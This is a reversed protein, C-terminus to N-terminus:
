FGPVGGPLFRNLGTVQGTISSLQQRQAPVTQTLATQPTIPGLQQTAPTVQPAPAAPAATPAPKAGRGMGGLAGSLGQLAGAGASVGPGPKKEKSMGGPKIMSWQQMGTVAQQMQQLRAQALANMMAPGISSYIDRIGGYAAPGFDSGGRMGIQRLYGQVNAQAQRAGESRQLALLRRTFPTDRGALSALYQPILFSSAQTLRKEHPTYEPRSAESKKNLLGGAAGSAAGAAMGAAALTLSM